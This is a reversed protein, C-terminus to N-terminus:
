RADADGSRRPLSDRMREAARLADVERRFWHVRAVQRGDDDLVLADWVGSSLLEAHQSLSM